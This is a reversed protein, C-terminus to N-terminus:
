KPPREQPTPRLLGQLAARSRVFMDRTTPDDPQPVAGLAQDFQALVQNEFDPGQLRLLSRVAVEVAFLRAEIERIADDDELRAEIGRMADGDEAM